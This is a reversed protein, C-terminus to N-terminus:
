KVAASLTGLIWQIPPRNQKLAPRSIASFICVKVMSSISVWDDLGYGKTIGVSSDRSRFIRMDM